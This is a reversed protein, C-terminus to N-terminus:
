GLVPRVYTDHELDNFADFQWNRIALIMTAGQRKTVAQKREERCIDDFLQGVTELREVLQRQGKPTIDGNKILRLTGDVSFDGQFFKQQVQTQFYREIPGNKQWKFNNSIRLRVRNEPLLEILKMRDLKALIRILEKEDLAYRVTIDEVKWYNVLCYAVLL